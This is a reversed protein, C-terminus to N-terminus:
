AGETTPLAALWAAIRRELAPRAAADAIEGLLDALFAEILMRRAAVLGIGRARLYFLADDDLEGAAAGHSCKVDDAFIELEPKNDIEARDSLLLTKCLQHGDAKQANRAVAIKGQFVGRAQDDLVGKYVERSSTRPQAHVIETTNDLHQRGRGLYFGYLNCGAGEGALRVRIENRGLLAGTQLVVSEYVAGAALAAEAHAIHYAEAAEDQLKCHDLRAGPGLAIQLAPHSWYPGDGVHSEVLTLRAGAGLQVLHRSHFAVPKGAAARGVSLLHIPRDVVVGPAVRIVVGDTMLAANLALMADAATDAAALAVALSPDDQVAEGLSRIDVGPPLLALAGADLRLRGNLLLIEIAPAEATLLGAPLPAPPTPDNAPAAFAIQALRNLNTYKWPEVRPTPLGAQRFVAMAQQRQLAVAPTEGGTLVPGAAWQGAIAPVAAGDGSIKAVVTMEPRAGGYRSIAM